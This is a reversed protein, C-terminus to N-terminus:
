NKLDQMFSTGKSVLNVYKSCDSSENNALVVSLEGSHIYCGLGSSAALNAGCCVRLEEFYM